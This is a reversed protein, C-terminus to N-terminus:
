WRNGGILGKSWLQGLTYQKLWQALQKRDLRKLTTAGNEKECVIVSEPTESLADVLSDSHTTVILQMRQSAEVLLEALKPLMDPHLGIEPEEFCVLPPPSPHLLIALLCLWRLTGDSLRTAPFQYPRGTKRAEELFIQTSNGEIHINVEEADPNVAKLYERLLRRAQADTKLKNLILGLNRVDEDEGLYDNPLDAPQPQRPSWEDDAGLYLDRYLRFSEFLHSLATLQPYLTPSRYQSLVSKRVDLDTAPIEQL